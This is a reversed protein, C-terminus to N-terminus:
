NLNMSTDPNNRGAKDTKNAIVWLPRTEGQVLFKFNNYESNKGCLYYFLFKYLYLGEFKIIFQGVFNM